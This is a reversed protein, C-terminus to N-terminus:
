SSSGYDNSEQPLLPLRHRRKQTTSMGGYICCMLTFLASQLKRVKTRRILLWSHKGKSWIVAPQPHDKHTLSTDFMQELTYGIHFIHEETTNQPALDYIRRMIKSPAKKPVPVYKKKHTIRILWHHILCRSWLTDLTFFTSGTTNQPALDYIRRM